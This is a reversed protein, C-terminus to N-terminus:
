AKHWAVAHDLKPTIKVPIGLSKAVLCLNEAKHMLALVRDADDASVIRVSPQLIIEDIAYGSPSRRVSASAGVHLDTLEVRARSAIAGLTTTFCSAVAALLLEEPTWRGEMGGFEVPAAFHIAVPSRDAKALGNRGSSWWASVYYEYCDASPKTTAKKNRNDFSQMIANDDLCRAQATCSM